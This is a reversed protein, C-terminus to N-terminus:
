RFFVDDTDCLCEGFYSLDLEYKYKSQLIVFISHYYAMYKFFIIPMIMKILFSQHIKADDTHHHHGAEM